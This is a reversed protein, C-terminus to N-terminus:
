KRLSLGLEALKQKIEDLSISGFNNIQEETKQVLDGLTVLSMRRFVRQPWYSFEMESLPKSILEGEKMEVDKITVRPIDAPGESM